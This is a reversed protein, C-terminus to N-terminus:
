RADVLLPHVDNVVESKKRLALPRVPVELVVIMLVLGEVLDPLHYEQPHPFDQNLHCVLQLNRFTQLPYLQVEHDLLLPRIWHIM